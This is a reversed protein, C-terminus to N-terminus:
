RADARLLGGRPATCEVRWWSESHGDSGEGPVPHLQVTGGVRRLERHTRSHVLRVVSHCGLLARHQDIVEDVPTFVEVRMAPRRHASDMGEGSSFTVDGLRGQDHVVTSMDFSLLLDPYSCVACMAYCGWCLFSAFFAHIIDCWAPM